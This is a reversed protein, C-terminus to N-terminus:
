RAVTVFPAAPARALAAELTALAGPLLLDDSDVFAVLPTTM